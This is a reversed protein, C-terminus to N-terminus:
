QLGILDSRRLNEDLLAKLQALDQITGFNLVDEALQAPVAINAAGKPTNIQVVWRDSDGQAVVEALRYRVDVGALVKQVVLGFEAARDRLRQEAYESALRMRALQEPKAGLRRALNRDAETLEPLESAPANLARAWEGSSTGSPGSVRVQFDREAM